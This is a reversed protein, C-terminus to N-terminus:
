KIANTNGISLIYKTNKNPDNDDNIQVVIQIEINYIILQTEKEFLDEIKQVHINKIRDNTSFENLNNEDNYIFWSIIDEKIKLVRKINNKTLIQLTEIGNFNRIFYNHFNKDVLFRNLKDKALIRANTIIAKGYYNGEYLYVNDYTIVCRIILEGIYQSLKPFFHGTNFLQLASYFYLNFILAHLPTEFILFGGDGTSIFENEYRTPFLTKEVEKVYKTAEDRIIDFVFPILNQKETDYNSYKYIDLGLVAKRDQIFNDQSFKKIEEIDENNDLYDVFENDIKKLNELLKTKDTM